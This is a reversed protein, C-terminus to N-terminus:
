AARGTASVEAALAEQARRRAEALANEWQLRDAVSRLLRRGSPLYDEDDPQVQEWRYRASDTAPLGLMETLWAQRDGRHDALTKGSWKRSVLVRRGAYGLHDYRHAKGKCAGPVLGPRPEQAPHWLAALECVDALV